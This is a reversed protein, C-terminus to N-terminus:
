LGFMQISSCMKGNEMQSLIFVTQPKDRLSGLSSRPHRLFAALCTLCGVNEPGEKCNMVQFIDM